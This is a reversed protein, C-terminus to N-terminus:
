RRVEVAAGDALTPPPAVVVQEGASLGSLVEVAERHREGATILRMRATGHDVVFVSQLQGHQQLAAAPIALTERNGMSFLAKGFLGSRMEPLPPIEIKVTYSRSTADVAPVIESVRGDFCRDLADITVRATRGARVAPLKSEDVEVELRFSGEREVTFLPAGPAALNGPDVSKATVVGAFPATITAYDLMIRAARQEQEAQAIKAQLQARKAVAMEYNAQASKQRASAEDFEQNSISNKEKLERMRGFTAQALDFNAKAAAISNEVEPVASQAESHGAEARRLNTELDRADITVLMQGAHVRDGVRANVQQVYGMVKSAVVAATQARVTGTAEYTAPWDQTAASATEVAVPAAAAAAAHQPTESGCSTLVLGAAALAVAWAATSVGRERAPSLLDRARM